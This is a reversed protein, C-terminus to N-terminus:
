KYDNFGLLWNKAEDYDYFIQMDYTSKRTAFKVIANMYYKKFPDKKIVIAAHKLGNKEARIIGYDQFWRRDDPDIVGAQRTDAIYNIVPHTETYDLISIFAEKYKESPINVFSKWLVVAMKYEEIYSTEVYENDLVIVKSM